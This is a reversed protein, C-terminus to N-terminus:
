APGQQLFCVPRPYPQETTGELASFRKRGKVCNSVPYLLPRVVCRPRDRTTGRASTRVRVPLAGSDPWTSSLPTPWQKGTHPPSDCVQHLWPTSLTLHWSGRVQVKTPSPMRTHLNAGRRRIKQKSFHPSALSMSILSDQCIECDESPPTLGTRGIFIARAPKVMTVNKDHITM